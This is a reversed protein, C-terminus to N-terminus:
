MREHRLISGRYLLAARPMWFHHNVPVSTAVERALGQDALAITIRGRLLEASLGPNKFLM